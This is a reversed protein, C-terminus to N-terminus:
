HIKFKNKYWLNFLISLLVNMISGEWWLKIILIKKTQIDNDDAEEEQYIEKEYEELYKRGKIRRDEELILELDANLIEIHNIDNKEIPNDDFYKEM